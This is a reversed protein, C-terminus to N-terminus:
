QLEPACLEDKKVMVEGYHSYGLREFARVVRETNVGTTVSVQKDAVGLQDTWDEFMRLMRPFASTGRFEPRVYIGLDTAVKEFSFFYEVILFGFMGALRGNEADITVIGGINEALLRQIVDYMKEESYGLHQFRPSEAHMAAAMELLQPTDEARAKRAIM